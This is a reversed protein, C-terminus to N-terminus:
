KALFYKSWRKEGTKNLVNDKVMSVLERQLTKESSSALTSNAVSKAGNRIDTITSGGRSIAEKDAKIIDIIEERRKKKLLDFNEGKDVHLVPKKDEHRNSMNVNSLAKMLTSGKQVGLRTQYHIVKPEVSEQGITSSGIFNELWLPDSQGLSNKLQTFERSLINKNMESVMGLTSAIDLFSLIETVRLSSRSSNAFVDSLVETGLSRLKHRLPEDKDMIDTVMFLATILKNTKNYKSSVTIDKVPTDGNKSTDKLNKGEELMTDM